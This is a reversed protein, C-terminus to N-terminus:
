SGEKRNVTVSPAGGSTVALRHPQVTPVAMDPANYGKSSVKALEYGCRPRQSTRKRATPAPAFIRTAPVPKDHAAVPVAVATLLLPLELTTAVACLATDSV